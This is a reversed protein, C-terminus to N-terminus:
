NIYDQIIELVEMIILKHQEENQWMPYVDASTHGEHYEYLTIYGLVDRALCIKQKSDEGYFMVEQEYTKSACFMKSIMTAVEKEQEYTNM